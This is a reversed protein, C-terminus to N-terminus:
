ALNRRDNQNVRVGMTVTAARQVGTSGAATDVDDRRQNLKFGRCHLDTATGNLFARYGRLNM